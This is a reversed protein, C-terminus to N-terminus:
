REHETAADGDIGNQRLSVRRVDDSVNSGGVVWCVDKGGVFGGCCAPAACLENMKQRERWSADLQLNKVSKPPM